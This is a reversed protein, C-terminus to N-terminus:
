RGEVKRERELILLYFLFFLTLMELLHLERRPQLNSDYSSSKLIGTRPPPGLNHLLYISLEGGGLFVDLTYRYKSFEKQSFIILWNFLKQVVLLLSLSCLSLQLVM